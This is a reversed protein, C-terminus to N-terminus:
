RVDGEGDAAFSVWCYESPSLGQGQAWTGVQSKLRELEAFSESVNHSLPSRESPATGSYGNLTPIGRELGAWMADLQYIYDPLPGLAAFYFAPCNEPIAQAIHDARWRAQLKDYSQGPQIQEVIVLAALAALAWGKKRSQEFYAAVGLGAPILLLLGIRSLARIAKAGPLVHFLLRWPTVGPYVETTALILIAATALAIRAWPKKRSFRRLGIIALALSIWGISLRQEISLMSFAKVKMQWAYLGEGQYLWAQIRPPFVESYHRFGVRRAAELYHLAMPLLALAAGALAGIWAWPQREWATRLSPRAKPDLYAIVLAVGLGLVLFWGLYFAAYFELVLCAAFAAIWGPAKPSRANKFLETLAVLALVSFFHPLLQPHSAQAARPSGFAFVFAGILSSDGRFNLGRRLWLYFAAFNLLAMGLMWLQFSTDPLFGLARILWYVPAAGLLLDTFAAANKEPFFIPPNWFQAHAPVGALWRYSHELIYLELRTDGLDNQM